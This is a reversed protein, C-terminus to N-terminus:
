QKPCINKGKKERISITTILPMPDGRPRGPTHDHKLEQPTTPSLSIIFLHFRPFAKPPPSTSNSSHSARLCEICAVASVDRFLFHAGPRSPGPRPCSNQSPLRVIIGCFIFAWIFPTLPFVKDDLEGFEGDDLRTPDNEWMRKRRLLREKELTYHGNTANGTGRAARMIDHLARRRM